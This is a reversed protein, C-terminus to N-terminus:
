PEMQHSKRSQCVTKVSEKMFKDFKGLCEELKSEKCEENRWYFSKVIARSKLDIVEIAM